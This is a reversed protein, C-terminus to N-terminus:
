RGDQRCYATHKVTCQNRLHCLFIRGAEAFRLLFVAIQLPRDNTVELAAGAHFRNRTTQLVAVAIQPCSVRSPQGTANSVLHLKRQRHLAKAVADWPTCSVRDM